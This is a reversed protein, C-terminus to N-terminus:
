VYLIALKNFFLVNPMVDIKLWCWQEFDYLEKRKFFFWQYLYM